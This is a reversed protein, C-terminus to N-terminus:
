EEPRFEVAGIDPTGVPENGLFDTERGEIVGGADKAPSESLPMFDFSDPDRLMPDKPSPSDADFGFAARYADWDAADFSGSSTSVLAQDADEQFYLNHNMGAVGAESGGSFSILQLHYQDSLVNGYLLNNDFRLAEIDGSVTVLGRYDTSTGLTGARENMGYFTNNFVATSKVNSLILAKQKLHKLVNNYIRFDTFTASEGWLYIGMSTFDNPADQPDNSPDDYILNNRITFNRLTDGLTEGGSGPECSIDLGTTHFGHYLTNNEILVNEFVLERNSRGNDLYINYSINRRGSDHIRNNRVKMDSHWIQLGMASSGGQIGIHGIHCNQITLGRVEYDMPWGDDYGVMTTYMLELGDVVIYEKPAHGEMAIAARRQPIEVFMYRESPDFPSYVFIAEDLFCWDYEQELFSFGADCQPIEDTAQVRGRTVNGDKEGFFISSAKGDYPADFPDISHWLNAEGAASWGSVAESGLIRPKDGEGYTGFTIPKEATGSFGIVLTERFTDGRRFVVSDGPLLARGNVKSLTRWPHDPSTGDASDDGDESVFYTVAEECGTCLGGCDVGTEGLGIDVYGNACCDRNTCAGGCDVGVEDGDREGDACSRVDADGDGASDADADTAGVSDGTSPKPNACGWASLATCTLFTAGGPM